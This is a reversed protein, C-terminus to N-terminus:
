LNNIAAEAKDTSAGAADAWVLGDLDLHGM